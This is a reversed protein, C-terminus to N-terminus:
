RHLERDDEPDLARTQSSAKHKQSADPAALDANQHKSSVARRPRAVQRVYSHASRDCGSGLSCAGVAGAAGAHGQQRAAWSAHGRCHMLGAGHMRAVAQTGRGPTSSTWPLGSISDRTGSALLGSWLRRCCLLAGSNSDLDSCTIVATDKSVCSVVLCSLYHQLAQTCRM